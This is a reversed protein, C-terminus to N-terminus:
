EWSCVKLTAAPQQGNCMLPMLRESIDIKVVAGAFGATGLPPLAIGIAQMIVIAIVVLVSCERLQIAAFFGGMRSTNVWIRFLAPQHTPAKKTNAM